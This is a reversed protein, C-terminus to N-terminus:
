KAQVTEQAAPIVETQPAVADKMIIVMSKDHNSFDVHVKVIRTYGSDRGALAPVVEEIMKRSVAENFYPRLRTFALQTDAGARKVLTVLRDFKPRFWKARATFTVIKGSQILGSCLDIWLRRREEETRKFKKTNKLHRM